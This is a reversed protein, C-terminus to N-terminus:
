LGSQFSRPPKSWWPPDSQHSIPLHLGSLELPPPAPVQISAWAAAPRCLGPPTQLPPHVPEGKGTPKKGAAYWCRACGRPSSPTRTDSAPRCVPASARWPATCAPPACACVCPRSAGCTCPSHSRAPGDALQHPQHPCVQHFLTPVPRASLTDQRGGGLRPDQPGRKQRDAAGSRRKSERHPLTHMETGAPPPPRAPTETTTDANGPAGRCLQARVRSPSGPCPALKTAGQLRDEVCFLTESSLWLNLSSPNFTM